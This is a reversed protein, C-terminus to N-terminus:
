GGQHRRPLKAQKIVAEVSFPRDLLAEVVRHFKSGPRGPLAYRTKYCHRFWFAIIRVQAIERQSVTTKQGHKLTQNDLALSVSFLMNYMAQLCNYQETDSLGIRARASKNVANYSNICRQLENELKCLNKYDETKKKVPEMLDWDNKGEIEGLAHGVWFIFNKTELSDDLLADLAACKKKPLSHLVPKSM